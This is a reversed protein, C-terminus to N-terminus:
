KPKLWIRRGGGSRSWDRTQVWGLSRLAQGINMPHPRAKYRGNLRAVFEDMSWPRDRQASPLSLMLAEIQDKLSIGCIIRTDAKAQKARAQERQRNAEAVEGQLTEIYAKM